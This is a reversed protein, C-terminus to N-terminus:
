LVFFSGTGLYHTTVGVIVREVAQAVAAGFILFYTIKCNFFYKMKLQM